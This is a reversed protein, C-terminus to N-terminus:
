NLWELLANSNGTAPASVNQVNIYWTGASLSVPGPTQLAIQRAGTNSTSTLLYANASATYDCPTKSISIKRGVRQEGAKEAWSMQAPMKGATSADVNLQVVWTANGVMGSSSIKAYTQSANLVATPRPCRGPVVVPPTVVPPSSAPPTPAIVVPPNPPAAVGLTVTTRTNCTLVAGSTSCSTDSTAPQGIAPSVAVFAFLALVILELTYKKM